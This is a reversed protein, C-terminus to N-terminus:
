WVLSGTKHKRGKIAWLFLTLSASAGALAGVPDSLFTVGWMARATATEEKGNSSTPRGCRSSIQVAIHELADAVRLCISGDCGATFLLQEYKGDYSLLAARFPLKRHFGSRFFLLSFLFFFQGMFYPLVHWSKPRGM